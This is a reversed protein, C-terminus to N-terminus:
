RDFFEQASITMGESDTLVLGAVEYSDLQRNTDAHLYRQKLAEVTLPEALKGTKFAEELEVCDQLALRLTEEGFRAGQETLKRVLEKYLLAYYSEAEFYREPILIGIDLNRKPVTRDGGPYEYGMEAAAQLIRERTEGSMGPQGGLAKSVTVASTGVAKAIDRMTPKKM